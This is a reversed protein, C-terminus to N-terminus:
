CEFARQGHFSRFLDFLRALKIMRKQGVIEKSLVSKRESDVDGRRTLQKRGEHRVLTRLGGLPEQRIDSKDNDTGFEPEDTHVKVSVGRRDYTEAHSYSSFEVFRCSNPSSSGVRFSQEPVSDWDGAFKCTCPGSSRVKVDTKDTYMGFEFLGAHVQAPAGHGSILNLQRDTSFECLGANVPVGLM